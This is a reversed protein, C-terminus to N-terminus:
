EIAATIHKERKKRKANELYNADIGEWDGEFFVEEKVSAIEEKGSNKTSDDFIKDRIALITAADQQLQSLFKLDSDDFPVKWDQKGKMRSLRFRLDERIQATTKNSVSTEEKKLNVETKETYKEYNSPMMYSNSEEKFGNAVYKYTKYLLGPKEIKAKGSGGILKPNNKEEKQKDLLDLKRHELVMRNRCTLFDEKVEEKKSDKKPNSSFLNSVFGPIFRSSSPNSPNSGGTSKETNTRSEMGIVNLNLLTSLFFAYFFRLYMSIVGLFYM